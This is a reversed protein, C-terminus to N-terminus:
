ISQSGRTGRGMLSRRTPEGLTSRLKDGSTNRIWSESTVGGLQRKQKNTEVGNKGSGPHIMLISTSLTPTGVTTMQCFITGLM